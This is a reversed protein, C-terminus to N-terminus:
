GKLLRGYREEDGDKWKQIYNRTKITLEGWYKVKQSKLHFLTKALQIMALLGNCENAALEQLRKRIMWKEPDNDVKVNNARWAHIYIDKAARIIDDTLATQYEPLFINQNRCIKITHIALDKALDCADLSRNAPTDPVHRQGVVVSM